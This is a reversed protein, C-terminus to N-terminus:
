LTLIRHQRHNLSSELHWQKVLTRNKDPPAKNRKKKNRTKKIHCNQCSCQGQQQGKQRLPSAQLRNRSHKKEKTAGLHQKNNAGCANQPQEATAKKQDDQQSKRTQKVTTPTTKLRKEKSYASCASFNIRHFDTV